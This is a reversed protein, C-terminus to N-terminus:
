PLLVDFYELMLALAGFFLAIACLAEFFVTKM